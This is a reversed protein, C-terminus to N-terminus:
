DTREVRFTGNTILLSPGGADLVSRVDLGLTGSFTGEFNQGAEAPVQTLTVSCEPAETYFGIGGDSVYQAFFFLKPDTACTATYGATISAPTIISVQYRPNVTPTTGFRFQRTTPTGISYGTWLEHTVGNVQMSGFVTRPPPGADVPEVPGADRVLPGADIGSDAPLPGADIGGDVNTSGGCSFVGLAFIALARM